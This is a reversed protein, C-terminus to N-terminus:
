ERRSFFLFIFFFLYLWSMGVALRSACGSWSEESWVLTRALGRSDSHSHCAWQRLFLGIVRRASQQTTAGIGVSYECASEAVAILCKSLRVTRVYYETCLLEHRCRRIM